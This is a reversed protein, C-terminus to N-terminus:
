KCLSQLECLAIVGRNTDLGNLMGSLILATVVFAVIIVIVALGSFNTSKM